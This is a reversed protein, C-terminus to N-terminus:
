DKTLASELLNILQLCRREKAWDLATMGDNERASVDVGAAILVRAIALYVREQHPWGLLAHLPTARDRHTIVHVDAGRELLMKVIRSNGGSAALILPTVGDEGCSDVPVGRDLLDQLIEIEGWRAAERIATVDDGADVWMGVISAFRGM